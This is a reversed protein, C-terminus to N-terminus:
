LNFQKTKCNRTSIFTFDLFVDHSKLLILFTFVFSLIQLSLKM